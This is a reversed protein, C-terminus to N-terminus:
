NKVLKHIERSKGHRIECFIIGQPIHQPIPITIDQKNQLQEDSQCIVQGSSTLFRVKIEGEAGEPITIRVEERILAPFVQFLSNKITQSNGARVKQFWNIVKDTTHVITDHNSCLALDFGFTVVNSGNNRPFYYGTIGDKLPYNEGGFVYIPLAEERLEFVDAWFLTSFTWNIKTLDEVPNESAPVLFPVGLGGDNANSQAAYSTIGLYDYPFSGEAFTVPAVGYQDFMFDNGVLWLNAKPNDLYRKLLHNETDLSQWMFLDLGWTSTHWIVLDFGLLFDLGPLGSEGTDYYFYETELSDLASAFYRSNGFNDASDDVFLVNSQGSIQALSFFIGFIVSFVYKNLDMQIVNLLNCILNDPYFRGKEESWFFHHYFYGYEKKRNVELFRKESWILNKM